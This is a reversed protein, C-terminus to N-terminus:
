QTIVTKATPDAMLREVPIQKGDHTLGYTGDEIRKLASEIKEMMSKTEETMVETTIMRNEEAADADSAANDDLRDLDNVPSDSTITSQLVMLKQKKELLSKKLQELIEPSIHTQKNM